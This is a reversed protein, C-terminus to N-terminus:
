SGQPVFTTLIKGAEEKIGLGLPDSCLKLTSAFTSIALARAGRVSEESEVYVLRDRRREFRGNLMARSGGHADWSLARYGMTYAEWAEPEDVQRLQNIISPLLDGTKTVGPVEAALAKARVEAAKERRGRFDEIQLEAAWKKSMEPSRVIEDAITIANREGEHEWLETHLDPNVALFRILVNIEILTRILANAAGPASGAQVDLIAQFLAGSRTALYALVLLFANPEDPADVRERLGLLDVEARDFVAPEPAHPKSM